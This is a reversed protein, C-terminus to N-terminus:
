MYFYWFGFTLQLTSRDERFELQKYRFECAIGCHNAYIYFNWSIFFDMGIQMSHEAKSYINYAPGLGFLLQVTNHRAREYNDYICLDLHIGTVRIESEVNESNDSDRKKIGFYDVSAIFCSDESWFPRTLISASGYLDREYSRTGELPEVMGAKLSIARIFHNEGTRALVTRYGASIFLVVVIILLKKM